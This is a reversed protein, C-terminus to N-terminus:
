PSEKKKAAQWKEELADIDFDGLSAGSDTADAEMLRFRQEFKRNAQALAQEPDIRLHRALNVVAFLLDGLEESMNGADQQESAEDLEGLEEDVKDRVGRIDPWDFGSGAARKGLKEARKLAPLSLAIGELASTDSSTGRESAKIREWSGPVAGRALENEDGFVHPHRRVMKDCISTTVDDFDFEDAEAAMQAHFVVQFLLDGLEDRLSAMDERAIADAVEYAEEVTYPVVSAFDREQDWPCGGDPSRLKAMIELLNQINSM